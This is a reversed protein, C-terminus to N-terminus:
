ILYHSGLEGNDQAKLHELPGIPEGGLEEAICIDLFDQAAWFEVDSNNMSVDEDDIDM